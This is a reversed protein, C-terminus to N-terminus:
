ILVAASVNPVRHSLEFLRLGLFGARLQPCGRSLRPSELAEASDLFQSDPIAILFLASSRVQVSSQRNKIM